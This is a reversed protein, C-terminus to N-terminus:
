LTSQDLRIWTALDDPLSLPLRSAYDLFWDHGVETLWVAGDERRETAFKGWGSWARGDSYHAARAIDRLDGRIAGREERRNLAYLRGFMVAVCMDKQERTGEPDPTVPTWNGEPDWLVPTSTGPAIYSVEDALTAASSPPGDLSAELRDAFDRAAKILAKTEEINQM